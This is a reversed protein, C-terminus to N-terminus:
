GSRHRFPIYDQERCKRSQTKQHEAVLTKNLLLRKFSFNSDLTSVKSSKNNNEHHMKKNINWLELCFIAGNFDAACETHLAIKHL